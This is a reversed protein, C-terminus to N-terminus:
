LVRLNAAHALGGGAGIAPGNLAGIVPIDLADIAPPLRPIGRRYREQLHVAPGSM